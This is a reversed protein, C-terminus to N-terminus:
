TSHFACMWLIESKGGTRQVITMLKVEFVNIHAVCGATYQSQNQKLCNDKLSIVCNKLDKINKM